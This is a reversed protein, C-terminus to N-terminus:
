QTNHTHTHQKKYRESLSIIPSMAVSQWRCSFFPFGQMFSSPSTVSIKVRVSHRLRNVASPNRSRWASPPRHLINIPNIAYDNSANCAPTVSATQAITPITPPTSPFLFLPPSPVPSCFPIPILFSGLGSSRSQSSVLPPRAIAMKRMLFLTVGDSENKYKPIHSPGCTCGRRHATAKAAATSTTRRRRRSCHSYFVFEDDCLILFVSWGGGGGGGFWGQSSFM